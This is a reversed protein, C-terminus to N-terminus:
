ITSPTWTRHPPMEFATMDRPECRQFDIGNTWTVTGNPDYIRAGKFVSTNTVTRSQMDQRCDFTGGDGVILNTLTGSSRYYATGSDITLTTVTGANTSFKGGNVTVTTVNSNISLEGGTQSITTLTTGSGCTVKSDSEQSTIYGVRLTAVTASDGADTAIGVDGKSVNVVNSAHTGNWTLAPVNPDVRTGTSLVNLTAQSDGSDLRVRRASTDIKIVTAQADSADGLALATPLVENFPYNPNTKNVDPLGIELNSPFGSTVTISAPTVSAQSIGYKLSNAARHDFVINDGDTPVGGDWNDADSFTHPGTGSTTTSTSITGSTSTKGVTLTFPRGDTQGTLYIKTAGEDEVASLQLFEGVTSGLANSSYGSGFTGSGTLMVIANDIITPIDYTAGVTLTLRKSGIEFYLSDSAAWTGGFTVTEYQPVAVAAGLYAITSM